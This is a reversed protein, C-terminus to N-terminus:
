LIRRAIQYIGYYMPRYIIDVSPPYEFASGGFGKKFRTVGPWKIEDIGGLDYGWFGRRKAEQIIEWHLLHPAMAGRHERGSAGHLYTAIGSPVYFNILAAAAIKDKFRAFFLENSFDVTKASLLKRYHEKPHLNFGDRMATESLMKWFDEFDGEQSVFVGSRKALRINYRTKEHMAGMLGDEPNKLDLIITKRPQLSDGIEFRSNKLESTNVPTESDIKLFISNEKKATEKANLLWNNTVLKPRPCYLYNFGGPLDHQVLFM